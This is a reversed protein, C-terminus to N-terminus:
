QIGPGAQRDDAAVIGRLDTNIQGTFSRDIRDIHRTNTTRSPREEAVLNIMQQNRQGVPIRERQIIGDNINRLSTSQRRIQRANKAHILQPATEAGNIQQSSQSTYGFATSPQLNFFPPTGKTNTIM